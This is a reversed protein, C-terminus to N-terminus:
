RAGAPFARFRWYNTQEFDPASGMLPFCVFWLNTGERVVWDARDPVSAIEASPFVTRLVVYEDHGNPGPSCGCLMALAAMLLLKKM